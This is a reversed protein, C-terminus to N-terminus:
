ENFIYDKNNPNQNRVMVCIEANSDLLAQFNEDLNIQNIEDQILWIEENIATDAAENTVNFHVDMAKTGFYYAHNKHEDSLRSIEDVDDLGTITKGYKLGAEMNAYMVAFNASCLKLTRIYTQAKTMTDESEPLLNDDKLWFRISHKEMLEKDSVEESPQSLFIDKFEELSLTVEPDAKLLEKYKDKFWEDTGPEPPSCSTIFFVLILILHKM